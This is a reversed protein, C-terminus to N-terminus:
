NIKREYILPFPILKNVSGVGRVKFALNHMEIALKPAHFRQIRGALNKKRDVQRNGGKRRTSNEGSKRECPCFM